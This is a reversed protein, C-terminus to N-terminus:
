KSVHLYNINCGDDNMVHTTLRIHKSALHSVELVPKLKIQVINVLVTPHPCGRFTEWVSALRVEGESHWLDAWELRGYCLIVALPIVFFISIQTM